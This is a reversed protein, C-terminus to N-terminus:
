QKMVKQTSGDSYQYIYFGQTAQEPQVEQGLLTIIKVLKPTATVTLKEDSIQTTPSAEFFYAAGHLGRRDLILNDDGETYAGSLMRDGYIAVSHGFYDYKFRDSAIVKQQQVWDTGILEFVYAAGANQQYNSELLDYSEGEAGVAIKTGSINVSCGFLAAPERDAAVIKQQELWIGNTRKFIYASGAEEVKASGIGAEDESKAGVVLYGGDIAVSYGFYDGANRDSAILKQEQAWVNNTRKFVYASGANSKTSVGETNESEWYAGVVVFDGSISVSSGFHDLYGRDLAVLKQEQIWETNTNKFVYAAGQYTGSGIDPNDGESPAGVVLSEGSISVYSGFLDGAERDTPVIKQVQIWSDNVRKFIYVSGALGKKNAGSADTDDHPSGVIAFEGSISVASGFRDNESRDSAVLKQEQIWNGNVRRFIYAAGAYTMTNSGMEDEEEVFAGIIAFDGSISVSNGFEANPSRDSAVAKVIQTWNQAQIHTAWLIIGLFV